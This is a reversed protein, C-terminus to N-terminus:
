YTVRAWDELTYVKLVPYVNPVFYPDALESPEHADFPTFYWDIEWIYIKRDKYIHGARYEINEDLSEGNCYGPSETMAILLVRKQDQSLNEISKSWEVAVNEIKDLVGLNMQQVDAKGRVAMTSNMNAGVEEDKLWMQGLYTVM